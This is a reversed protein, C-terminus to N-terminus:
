LNDAIMVKEELMNKIFDAVTLKLQKRNKFFYFDYSGGVIGKGPLYVFRDVGRQYEYLKYDEHWDTYTWFQYAETDKIIYKKSLFEKRDRLRDFRSSRSNERLTFLPFESEKFTKEFIDKIKAIPYMPLNINITGILNNFMEPRNRVAYFELLITKSTYFKGQRKIVLKYDNWYKTTDGYKLNNYSFTNAFYIKKLQHFDITSGEM